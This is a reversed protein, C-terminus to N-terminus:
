SSSLSSEIRITGFSVHLSAAFLLREGGDDDDDVTVHVPRGDLGHRGPGFEEANTQQLTSFSNSSNNNNNNNKEGIVIIEGVSLRTLKHVDLSNGMKGM